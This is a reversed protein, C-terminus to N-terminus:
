VGRARARGAVSGDARNRQVMKGRDKNNSSSSSSGTCQRHSSHHKRRKRLLVKRETEGHKASGLTGARDDEGM